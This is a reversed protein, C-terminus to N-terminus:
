ESSNDIPYLLEGSFKLMAKACHVRDNISIYGYLFRSSFMSLKAAGGHRSQDRAPAHGLFVAKPKCAATV